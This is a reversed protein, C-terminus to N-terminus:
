YLKITYYLVDRSFSSVSTSIFIAQSKSTLLDSSQTKLEKIAVSLYFESPTFALYIQNETNYNRLVLLM